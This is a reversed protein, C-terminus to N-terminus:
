IKGAEAGLATQAREDEEAFFQRIEEMQDGSLMGRLQEARAHVRLARQEAEPNQEALKKIFWDGIATHTVEDAWNYDYCHEMLADGVKHGLESTGEFLSLAFGELSVNIASLSVVPDAPDEGYPNPRPGAAQAQGALTDPYEGVKGGYGELLGTGLQAHRVEDWTQRAMAMILEWPVPWEQWECVKRGFADVGAYEASVINSVLAKRLEINDPDALVMQRLMQANYNQPGGIRETLFRLDAPDAAIIPRYAPSRVSPLNPLRESLKTV